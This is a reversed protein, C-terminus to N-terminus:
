LSLIRDYKRGSRIRNAIRTQENVNVQDESLPNSRNYVYLINPVYRSRNGSMELMPFQVATDGAMSYYQGDADRLDEDRIALMLGRRWTRLHSALWRYERFGNSEIVEQPYSQYIQSVSRYPHEEYTGYTMWVNDDYISDLTRLVNGDKFWDDGDLNMCISDPRATENALRLNEVQFKRAENRIVRVNPYRSKYGRAIENTRDSSEADVVIVEFDSTPYDQGVASDLCREIWGEVNFAPVIVTFHKGM